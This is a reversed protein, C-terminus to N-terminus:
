ESTREMEVAVEVTLCRPLPEIREGGSLVNILRARREAFPNGWLRGGSRSPIGGYDGKAGRLSKEM